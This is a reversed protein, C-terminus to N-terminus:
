QKAEETIISNMRDIIEEVRHVGFERMTDRVKNALERDPLPKSEEHSYFFRLMESNKDSIRITHTVKVKM